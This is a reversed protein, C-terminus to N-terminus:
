LMFYIQKILLFMANENFVTVFHKTSLNNTFKNAFENNECAYVCVFMRTYIYMCILVFIHFTKNKYFCLQKGAM